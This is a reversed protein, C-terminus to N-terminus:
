HNVAQDAQVCNWPFWFATDVGTGKDEWEREGRCFSGLKVVCLFHFSARTKSEERPRKLQCRGMDPSPSSFPPSPDPLPISVKHFQEQLRLLAGEVEIM